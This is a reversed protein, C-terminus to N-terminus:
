AVPVSNRERSGRHPTRNRRRIRHPKGQHGGRRPWCRHSSRTGEARGSRQSSSASARARPSRCSTRQPVAAVGEVRRESDDARWLKGFCFHVAKQVKVADLIRNIARAALPGDAPNGPINAEDVQVCACDLDGVQAALADAIAMTLADMDKYHTDLLTRALMYPSTITFKFGGGAVKSARTCDDALNLGAKLLRM